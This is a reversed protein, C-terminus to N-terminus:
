LRGNGHPGNLYDWLQRGYKGLLYYAAATGATLLAYVILDM